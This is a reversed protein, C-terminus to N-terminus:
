EKQLTENDNEINLRKVFCRRRKHQRSSFIKWQDLVKSNVELQPGTEASVIGVQWANTLIHNIIVANVGTGQDDPHVAILLLNIESGHALARLTPIWGFPFLRGGTKRFTDSLSRVSAGFAILEGADNEVLCALHPDIMPVFKKAYHRIQREDM